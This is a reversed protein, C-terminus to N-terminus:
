KEILGGLDYKGKVNISINGIKFLTGGKLELLSTLLAKKIKISEPHYM